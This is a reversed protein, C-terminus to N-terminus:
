NGNVRVPENRCFSKRKNARPLSRVRASIQTLSALGTFMGEMRAPLAHM